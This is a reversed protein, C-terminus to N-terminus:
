KQNLGAAFEANTIEAYLIVNIDGPFNHENSGDALLPVIVKKDAALLEIQCSFARSLWPWALAPLRHALCRYLFREDDHFVAFGQGNETGRTSHILLREGEGVVRLERLKDLSGSRAMSSFSANGQSADILPQADLGQLFPRVSFGGSDGL